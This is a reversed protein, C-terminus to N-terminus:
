NKIGNEQEDNVDLTDREIKNKLLGNMKARKEYEAAVVQIGDKLCIYLYGPRYQYNYREFCQCLHVRPPEKKVTKELIDNYTFQYIGQGCNERPCILQGHKIKIFDSPNKNSGYDM